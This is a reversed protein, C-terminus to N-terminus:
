LNEDLKKLYFELAEWLVPKINTIFQPRRTALIDLNLAATLREVIGLYHYKKWTNGYTKKVYASSKLTNGIIEVWMKLNEKIREQPLYSLSLIYWEFGLVSDYFPFNWQWFFHSFLYYYKGKKKIDYVSLHGHQFEKPSTQIISNVKQAIKFLKKSEEQPIYHSLPHDKRILQWKKFKEIYPPLNKPKPLFPKTIAKDKYEKYVFFFEEVKEKPAEKSSQIIFEAEVLEYVYVEFKLRDDWPLYFLIKPTKIINSGNQQNFAEIIKPEPIAPKSGQVKLTAKHKKGKEDTFEGKIHFAGVGKHWYRSEWIKEDTPKFSIKKLIEKIIEEKKQSLDINKFFDDTPSVTGYPM